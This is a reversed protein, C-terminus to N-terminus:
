GVAAIRQMGRPIAAVVCGAGCGKPRLDESFSWRSCPRREWAVAAGIHAANYALGQSWALGVPARRPLIAYIQGAERM